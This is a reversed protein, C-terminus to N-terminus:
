SSSLCLLYLHEGLPKRVDVNTKNRWYNLLLKLMKNIHFKLKTEHLKQKTKIKNQNEDLQPRLPEDEM